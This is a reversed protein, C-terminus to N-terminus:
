VQAATLGVAQLCSCPLVNTLMGFSHDMVSAAHTGPDVVSVYLAVWGPM